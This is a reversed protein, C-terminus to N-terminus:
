VGTKAPRWMAIMPPAGSPAINKRAAFGFREYLNTNKPNSNELYADTGREDIRKLNAELMTAGLGLGQLRPLVAIFALYFHREPPHNKEMAEGMASGRAFRSFGCLRLFMPLLRLQKSSAAPAPRRM